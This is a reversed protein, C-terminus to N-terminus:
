NEEANPASGGNNSGPKVGDKTISGIMDPILRESFGAAIGVLLLAYKGEKFFSFALGSRIAAYAIIGFLGGLAIRWINTLVLLVPLENSGISLSKSRELFSILAGAFGAVVCIIGNKFFNPGSVQYYTILGFIILSVSILTVWMLLRLKIENQWSDTLWLRLPTFNKEISSADSSTICAALATAVRLNFRDYEKKPLNAEAMARLSIFEIIAAEGHEKKKDIRWHAEGTEDIWVCGSENRGLIKRIAKTEAIVDRLEQIVIEASEFNKMKFIQRLVSIHSWNVVFPIEGRFKEHSKGICYDVKSLAAGRQEVLEHALDLNSCKYAVGRQDKCRYVIYNQSKTFIEAIEKGNEISGVFMESIELSPLKVSSYNIEETNSM